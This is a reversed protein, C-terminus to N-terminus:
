TVVEYLIEIYVQSTAAAIAVGTGSKAVGVTLSGGAVVIGTGATIPIVTGLFATLTTASTALTGVVVATGGAADRKTVNFTAFNSANLTIGIPVMVKIAVVNVNSGTHNFWIPTETQATAATGGDTVYAEAKQRLLVNSVLADDTTDLASLFKRVAKTIIDGTLQAM